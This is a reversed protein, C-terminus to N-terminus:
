VRFQHCSFRWRRLLLLGLELLEQVGPTPLTFVPRLRCAELTHQLQAEGDTSCLDSLSRKSFGYTCLSCHLSRGGTDTRIRWFFNWSCPNAEV